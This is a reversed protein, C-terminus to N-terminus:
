TTPWRSPRKPLRRPRCREIGEYKVTLRACAADIEESWEEFALNGAVEETTTTTPDDSLTDETPPTTRPTASTWASSRRWRTRTPTRSTWHRSRRRWGTPTRVGPRPPWPRSTPSTALTGSRGHVAGVEVGSTRRGWPRWTTSSPAPASRPTSRSDRWGPTTTTTRRATSDDVEERAEACLDNVTEQWTDFSVTKTRGRVLGGVVRRLRVATMAVAALAVLALRLLHPRSLSRSPGTRPTRITM